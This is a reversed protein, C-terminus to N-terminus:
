QCHAIVTRNPNTACFLQLKTSSVFLDRLLQPEEKQLECECGFKLSDTLVLLRKLYRMVFVANEKVNLSYPKSWIPSITIAERIGDSIKIM